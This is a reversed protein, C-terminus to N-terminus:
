SPIGLRRYLNSLLWVPGIMMLQIDRLVARIGGSAHHGFYLGALAIVVLGLSVGAVSVEAHNLLVGLAAVALMFPLMGIALTLSIIFYYVLSAMLFASGWNLLPSIRAFAGPIPLSWLMGTVGPVLILVASWYIAPCSINRHSDGYESLWRDTEPMTAGAAVPRHM